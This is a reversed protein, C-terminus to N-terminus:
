EGNARAEWPDTLGKEVRVYGRPYAPGGYGIDSWVLPHSYYAQVTDHLLKKFFDVPAVQSWAETDKVNGTSIQRLVEQQEAASLAGFETGYGAHSEAEVGALGLRYLEKKPPVGVKRQAEGIASALSDDLHAVVFTLVELRHDDVLVSVIAQLLLAEAQQLYRHAVQPMKRAGVVQRTHVDWNQHQEWVDYSPYRRHKAM